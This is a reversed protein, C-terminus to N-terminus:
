GTMIVHPTLERAHKAEQAEFEPQSDAHRGDLRVSEALAGAIGLLCLKSWTAGMERQATLYSKARDSQDLNDYHQGFGLRAAIPSLGRQIERAPRLWRDVPKPLYNVFWRGSHVERLSLRNSTGLVFLYGGPKLMSDLSQQVSQLQADAVYELVSNCVVVDFPELARLTHAVDDCLLFSIKGALRYQAANLAALSLM